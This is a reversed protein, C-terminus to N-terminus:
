EDAGRHARTTWTLAAARALRMCVPEDDFDVGYARIYHGHLIHRLADDGDIGAADSGPLDLQTRWARLARDRPQWADVIAAGGPAARLAAWGGDPNAIRVAEDFIPRAVPATTASAALHEVLWRMGATADGLYAVAIAATHAAILAQRHPRRTQQLQTLVARSDATFVAEAAHLASGAGWRGTESYSTPYRVERLLGDRHLQEAWGSVLRATPGFADPHPLRIRLRLHPDLRDADRYRLFWWPLEADLSALLQPLHDGLLEDQRRLDGYLQAYLLTSTGPPDGHGRHIVRAASPPRLPPWAPAASARLPVVVEHPRNACWGAGLPDVVETLTAGGTLQVHRRLLVRHASQTLDLLLRQDDMVLRVLAPMRRRERWRAFAADWRERDTEPGPLDTGPLRWTAPALIVRGHRVRPRYPLATAAGWRFGTVLACQARTLEMLFRALPPTHRRPNLSHLASVEIRRGWAAVALYLRGGDCGVVLDHVTLAPDGNPRHEALSLVTPLAQPARTVHGTTPDLPPFSAQVQLTNADPGPLAAIAGLHSAADDPDLVTLFRGTLGGVNRSVQVVEVSYRGQRLALRSEANVRVALELHSPLRPPTPGAGLRAILAEDLTIERRGELAATQALALLQEDRPKIKPKPPDVLTGPYGAPLGIGSDPDVLELLPVLAGIGYREYFTRHYDRWAPTGYPYESLQALVLAARQVDAAVQQPLVVRADLQLDLALPHRASRSETRMREALLDRVPAQADSAAVNHENLLEAAGQLCQLLERQEGHDGAGAADLVQVLHGLPDIETSPAHLNTILAGRTILTALVATVQEIPVKPAQAHLMAVLDAVAVPSRAAEVVLRVAPTLRIAVETSVVDRQGNPHPQHPVILQAGRMTLASNVVVTLRVLLAPDAELRTIVDTLWGAAPQAVVRHAGGWAAGAAAAPGFEAPAVGALLGFPTPRGTMRLVYHTVALVSRSVRGIDLGGPDATILQVVARALDPSAHSIAEAVPANAWVQRLWSRGVRAGEGTRLDLDPWPPLTFPSHACGRLLAPGAVQFTVSSASASM